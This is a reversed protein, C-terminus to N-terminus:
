ASLRLRPLNLGAYIGLASVNVRQIQEGAMDLPFPTRLGARRPFQNRSGLSAVSVRPRLGPSQQGTGVLHRHCWRAISGLGLAWCHLDSHFKGVSKYDDFTARVTGAAFRSEETSKGLGDRLSHVQGAM